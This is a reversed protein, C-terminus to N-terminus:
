NHEQRVSRLDRGEKRQESVYNIIHNFIQAIVNKQRPERKIVLPNVDDFAGSKGFHPQLPVVKKRNQM